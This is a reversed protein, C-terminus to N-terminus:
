PYVVPLGADKWGNIGTELEMLNTFGM